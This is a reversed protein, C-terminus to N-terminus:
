PELELTFDFRNISEGIRNMIPIEIRTQSLYGAKVVTIDNLVGGVAGESFVYYGDSDSRVTQPTTLPCQKLYEAQTVTLTIEADAVPKGAADVVRGHVAEGASPWCAPDLTASPSPTPSSSPSASPTDNVAVVSASCATLTALLVFASLVRHKNM